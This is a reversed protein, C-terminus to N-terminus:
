ILHLSVVLPVSAETRRKLWWETDFAELRALAEQPDLRTQINAFLELQEEEWDPDHSVKLTVPDEGFFRRINRRTNKLLAAVAPYRELFALIEEEDSIQYDRELERLVATPNKAISQAM